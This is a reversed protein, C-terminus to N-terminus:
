KGKIRYPPTFPTTYRALRTIRLDDFYGDMSQILDGFSIGLMTQNDTFVTTNTVSGFPAGNLYGTIIGNFRVIAVHHWTNASCPNSFFQFTNNTFLFLRGLWDTGIGFGTASAVTSRSEYHLNFVQTPANGFPSSKFGSSKFWYEATFDATLMNSAPTGSTGSLPTRIYDAPFSSTIAPIYPHLLSDGGYKFDLDTIQPNGITQIVNKTTQDYIAANNFNLLLTTFTNSPIAAVNTRAAQTTQLMSTPPTFVTTGLNATPSTYVAIGKVMRLDSIWGQFSENLGRLGGITVPQDVETVSALATTYRLIGNAYIRLNVGDYVWALHTWVGAQPTFTSNFETGNFYSVVGSTQRLFGQYSCTGAGSVRKGWIARFAGYDGTPKVWSEVTWSSTSATTTSAALVLGPNNNILFFDGSGGPFYASGGESPTYYSYTSSTTFPSIWDATPFNNTTLFHNYTSRDLYGNQLTLLSVASATTLELINTGSSQTLELPSSSPTFASRYLSFGKVIRVNSIFGNWNFGATQNVGIFCPQTTGLNGAVPTFGAPIGNVYGTVVGAVRVVAIHNWIGMTILPGASFIFDINAPGNYFMLQRANNVRINCATATAGTRFELINGPGNGPNSTPLVWCEITFDDTGFGFVASTGTTLFSSGSFYTSSNLQRYPNFSGQAATGFRIVPQRYVSNDVVASNNVAGYNQLTLLTTSTTATIANIFESSPQTANLISPLAFTATNLVFPNQSSFSPSPTGIANFLQNNTPSNDRFWTDQCTLLRTDTGALAVINVGSNQTPALPQNLPTFNGTYVANAAIRVDRLWGRMMRAVLQSRGIGIGGNAGLPASMATAFTTSIDLVGDVYISVTGSNRVLAFHYWRDAVYVTNGQITAGWPSGNNPNGLWVTIRQNVSENLQIAIWNFDQSGIIGTFQTDVREFRVWFEVTFNGTGFTYATNSASAPFQTATTLNIYNSGNFYTSPPYLPIDYVSTGAVTRVNSIYGNFFSSSGDWSNGIVTYPGNGEVLQTSPTSTSIYGDARGNVYLTTTNGKRSVAVHSWQNFNILSDSILQPFGFNPATGGSLLVSWKAPVSTHGAFLGFSDNYNANIYNSFVVPSTSARSIPYVWAEMTFDGTGFIPNPTRPVVMWDTSASFYASNFVSSNTFESPTVGFPHFPMVSVVGSATVTASTNQVLNVHRSSQLTLLGNGPVALPSTPVTINSTSLPNYNVGGILVRFNSMWGNVRFQTGGAWAGIVKRQNSRNVIAGAIASLQLIQIGNLWMAWTTGIRSVAVHNWQGLRPFTIGSAIGNGAADANILNWSTGNSSAWLGMRFTGLCNYDIGFWWDTTAHFFWQRSTNQPLWWFEVTFSSSGLELNTATSVNLWSSGDFYASYYPGNFPSYTTPVVTGGAVTQRRYSSLDKTFVTSTSDMSLVISTATYFPDIPNSSVGIRVNKGISQSGASANLNFTPYYTIANQEGLTAASTETWFLDGTATNLTMGSPLTGDSVSYVTPSNVLNTASQKSFLGTADDNVIFIEPDDWYMSDAGAGGGAHVIPTGDFSAVYTSSGTRAQCYGPAGGGGVVVLYSDGPTVPVSNQYNVFGGGGGSGGGIRQTGGGGGGVAAINVSTVGSPVLWSYQGPTTYFQSSFNTVTFTLGGYNAAINKQFDTYEFPTIAGVSAGEIYTYTKGGQQGFFSPSASVNISTVNESRWNIQTQRPAVNNVVVPIQMSNVNGLVRCAPAVGSVAEISIQQNVVLTLLQTLNTETAM